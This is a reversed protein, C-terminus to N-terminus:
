WRQMCVVTSIDALLRIWTVPLTMLSLPLPSPPFSPSSPGTRTPRWSPRTSSRSCNNIRCCCVGASSSFVFDAQSGSTFITRLFRFLDSSPSGTPTSPASPTSQSEVWGDDETGPLARRELHLRRPGHRLGQVRSNEIFLTAPCLLPASM